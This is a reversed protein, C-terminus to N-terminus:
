AVQEEPIENGWVDWGPRQSRAFLEIKRDTPYMAEIIGYLAEPKQSHRGRDATLISSVRAAHEPTGPTGRIGLLLHEHTVRFYHGMGLGNKVWVAGSRYSFGWANLVSLGEELKPATTWLFLVANEATLDGVPLAQIQALDMTPYHNEIQDSSDLSFEYRWPPDALIVQYGDVEPRPFPTPQLRESRRNQNIRNEVITRVAAATVGGAAAREITEQWADAREGEPLRLLERAQAENAPAIDGIPSVSKSVSSADILRYARSRSMQWREQCYAEFTPFGAERYLFGERITLLAEGVEIFSLIGREIVRECAALTSFREEPALNTM